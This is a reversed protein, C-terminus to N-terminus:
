LRALTVFWAVLLAAALLILGRDLWQGLREVRPRWGPAALWAGHRTAQGAVYLMVLWGLRHHELSARLDGRALDVWSRTLGCGPCPLGTTNRMVCLSPLRAGGVHLGGETTALGGLALTALLLGACVSLV